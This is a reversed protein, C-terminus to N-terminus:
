IFLSSPLTREAGATQNEELNKVYVAEMNM